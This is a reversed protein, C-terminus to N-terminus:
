LKGVVKPIVGGSRTVLLTDGLSLDLDEVFGANHLTAKNITADDIVIPEFHAVPTVKRGKGIQWVVDLLKTEVIKVDSRKKYAFAGRPHKSTYGLSEFIRNDNERYVIGDQPFEDWDCDLVTKFGWTQLSKMDNVYHGGLTLGKIGYAIFTLDRSLFEGPDKLNIAGAAYNRANKITKPAVVEGTIQIIKSELIANPISPLLLMNNLIDEGIIGDGRSAAEVLQGDAYVLEIAAGDLKPTKIPNELIADPKTEEDDFIKRLSYMPYIHEVKQVARPTYGVEYYGYTTSLYDFVTDDILPKGEMYAEQCRDLFKLM